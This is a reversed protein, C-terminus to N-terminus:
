LQSDLIRKIQWKLRELSGIDLARQGSLMGCFIIPTEREGIKIQYTGIEDNFNKEFDLDHGLWIKDFYPIHKQKKKGFFESALSNSVVIIRPTVKNIIEFSIDLQAQLFDSNKFSLEEIIDQNTERMFFLDLHTWEAKSCYKAVDKFKEFYSIDNIEEPLISYFEIENNKVEAKRRKSFSPNIGIFLISEKKITKPLLPSKRYECDPANLLEIDKFKNWIDLVRVRYEKELDITDM